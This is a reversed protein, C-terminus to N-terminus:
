GSERRHELMESSEGLRLSEQVFIPADSHRKIDCTPLRTNRIVATWTCISLCSVVSSPNQATPTIRQYDCDTIPAVQQMIHITYAAHSIEYVIHLTIARTLASIM